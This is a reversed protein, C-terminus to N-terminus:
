AKFPVVQRKFDNCRSIEHQLGRLSQSTCLRVRKTFPSCPVTICIPFGTTCVNGLPCMSHLWLPSAMLLFSPANVIMVIKLPAAANTSVSIFISCIKRPFKSAGKVSFCVSISILIGPQAPLVIISYPFGMLNLFPMSITYRFVISTPFNSRHPSKRPNCIGYSSVIARKRPNCIANAIM